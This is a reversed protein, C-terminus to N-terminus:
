KMGKKKMEEEKDEEDMLQMLRDEDSEDSDKSDHKDDSGSEEKEDDGPIAGRALVEKAKDLGMALKDKDPAQVEVSMAKKPMEMESEEDDKKSSMSGSLVDEMKEILQALIKDKLESDDMGDDHMM